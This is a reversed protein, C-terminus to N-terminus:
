HPKMNLVHFQKRHSNKSGLLPSQKKGKIYFWIVSCLSCFCVQVRWCIGFPHYLTLNLLGKPNLCWGKSPAPIHKKTHRLQTYGLRVVTRFTLNGMCKGTPKTKTVWTGRAQDLELTKLLANAQRLKPFGVKGCILLQKSQERLFTTPSIYDGLLCYIYIYLLHYISGISPSIYIVQWRNLSDPFEM